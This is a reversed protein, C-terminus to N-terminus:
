PPNIAIFCYRSPPQGGGSKMRSPRAQGAGGTKRVNLVRCPGEAVHCRYGIIAAGKASVVSKVDALNHNGPYSLEVVEIQWYKTGDPAEGSGKKWDKTDLLPWIHTAITQFPSDFEPTGGRLVIEGSAILRSFRTTLEQWGQEAALSYREIRDREIEDESKSSTVSQKFVSNAVVWHDLRGWDIVPPDIPNIAILTDNRNRVYRFVFELLNAMAAPWHLCHAAQRICFGNRGVLV